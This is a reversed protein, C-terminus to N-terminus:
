SPASAELTRPARFLERVFVEDDGNVDPWLYFAADPRDVAMVKQLIPLM